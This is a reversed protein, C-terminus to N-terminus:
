KNALSRLADRYDSRIEGAAEMVAEYDPDLPSLRLSNGEMISVYLEDGERLNASSILKKPLNVGMSNGHKVVRVINAM